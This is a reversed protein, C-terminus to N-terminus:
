FLSRRRGHRDAGTTGAAADSFATRLMKKHFGYSELLGKASGKVIERLVALQPDNRWKALETAIDKFEPRADPSDQWSREILSRCEAPWVAPLLPRLTNNAMGKAITETSLYLGNYARERKLLEYMIIAYSYVDNKHTYEEGRYNEPAMYRLSGVKGTMKFNELRVGRKEFTVLGFDAIKATARDGCLLINEPKLDRHIIPPKCDNLFAMGAAIHHAWRLGDATTYKKLSNETGILPKLTGFPAFEQVIALQDNGQADKQLTCGIYGIVNPHVLSKLTLLESAFDSLERDNIDALEADTLRSPMMPGVDVPPLKVKLKKLAVMGGAGRVLGGTISSIRPTYSCQYVIGFAGEGLVKKVSLQYPEIVSEKVHARLREMNPRTGTNVDDMISHMDGGPVLVM